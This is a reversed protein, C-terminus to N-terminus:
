FSIKIMKGGVHNFAKGLAITYINHLDSQLTQTMVNTQKSRFHKKEEFYIIQKRESLLTFKFICNLSVAQM